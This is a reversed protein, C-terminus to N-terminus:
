VIGGVTVISGDAKSELASLPCDVRARLAEKVETLPHSSLFTGLTEKELRLLERQDFEEGALPPHHSRGAEAASAGGGLDFISSQGMRSDEQARQGFSTAHPLAELIGKRSAGTSDL